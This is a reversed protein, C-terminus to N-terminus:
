RLNVILYRRLYKVYSFFLTILLIPASIFGQLHLKHFVKCEFDHVNRLNFSLGSHGYNPKFTNALSINMKYVSLGSFIISLWLMYDEAYKMNEDFRFPIDRRILVTPTAFPTFFLMEFKKIKRVNYTGFSCLSGESNDDLIDHTHGVVCADSHSLLFEYQIKIKDPHWADDADLFAIYQHSAIEWGANRATSVGSNFDLSIAFILGKNLSVLKSIIEPTDDTSGDDVLIIESVQLSQKLISDVARIITKEAQYCPVIVSIPAKSQRTEDM